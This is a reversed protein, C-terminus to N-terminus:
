ALEVAETASNNRRPELGTLEASRGSEPDSMRVTYKGSEFVFPQWTSQPARLPYVVEGDTEAETESEELADPDWRYIKSVRCNQRIDSRSPGFASTFPKIEDGRTLCGSFSDIALSQADDLDFCGPFVEILHRERPSTRVVVSRRSTEGFGDISSTFCLSRVEEGRRPDAETFATEGLTDTTTPETACAALLLGTATILVTSKM